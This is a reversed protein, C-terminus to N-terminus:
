IHQAPAVNTFNFFCFLTTCNCEQYITEFLIMISKNKDFATNNNTVINHYRSEWCGNRQTASSYIHHDLCSFLASLKMHYIQKTIFKCRIANCLWSKFFRQRRSECRQWVPRVIRTLSLKISYIRRIKCAYWFGGLRTLLTVSHTTDLPIMIVDCHNMLMADKTVPQETHILCITRALLMAFMLAECQQGM